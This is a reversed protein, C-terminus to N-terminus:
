SLEATTWSEGGRILDELRAGHRMQEEQMELEDTLFDPGDKVQHPSLMQDDGPKQNIIRPKTKGQSREQLRREVM